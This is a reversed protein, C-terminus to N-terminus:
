FNTSYRTLLQNWQLDSPGFSRVCLLPVIAPSDLSSRALKELVRAYLEDDRSSMSGSGSDVTSSRFSSSSLIEQNKKFGVNEVDSMLTSVVVPTQTTTPQKNNLQYLNSPKCMASRYSPGPETDIFPTLHTPKPNCASNSTISSAAVATNSTAIVQPATTSTASTTELRIYREFEDNAAATAISEYACSDNEDDQNESNPNTNTSSSNPQVSGARNSKENNVFARSSSKSTSPIRM